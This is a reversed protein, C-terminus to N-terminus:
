GRVSTTPVLMGHVSALHPTNALAGASSSSNQWGITVEAGEPVTALPNNLSGTRTEVGEGNAALVLPDGLKYYTTAAAAEDKMVIQVVHTGSTAGATVFIGATLVHLEFGEPISLRPGPGANARWGVDYSGAALASSSEYQGGIPVSRDLVDMHSQLSEKWQRFIQVVHSPDSGNLLEPLEIRSSVTM